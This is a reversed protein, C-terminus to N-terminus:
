EETLVIRLAGSSFGNDTEIQYRKLIQSGLRVNQDFQLMGNTYNYKDDKEPSVGYIIITDFRESRYAKLAKCLTAVQQWPTCSPYSIHVIKKRGYSESEDQVTYEQAGSELAWLQQATRPPFPAPAEV